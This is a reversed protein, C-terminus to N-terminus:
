KGLFRLRPAHKEALAEIVESVTIRTDYSKLLTMSVLALEGGYIDPFAPPQARINVAWTICTEPDGVVLSSGLPLAYRLISQLTATNKDM